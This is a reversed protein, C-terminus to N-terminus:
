GRDSGPPPLAYRNASPDVVGRVRQRTRESRAIRAFAGPPLWALRDRLAEMPWAGDRTNRDVLEAAPVPIRPLGEVLAHAAGGAAVLARATALRDAPLHAVLPHVREAEAVGPARALAVLTPATLGVVDCPVILVPGAADELAAVVGNLPHRDGDDPEYLVRVATGDDRLWPLGDPSGRRVIAAEMGAAELVQVLHVAAPVTGHPLRAKDSGMRESAGGALVYGKM